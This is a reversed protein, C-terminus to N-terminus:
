AGGAVRVSGARGHRGRRAPLAGVPLFAPAVGIAVRAAVVPSGDLDLVRGELVGPLELNVTQLELPRSDHGTRTIRVSVQARAYEPHSVLLKALGPSVDKIRYGGDDDTLASRREGGSVLTVSAGSVFRRGRVATIRGEVQVAPQLEVDVQEPAEDFRQFSRAWGPASIRIELKLGVSDELEVRGEPGTFYTKRLPVAPDLSLFSVQAVDVPHGTDDVM